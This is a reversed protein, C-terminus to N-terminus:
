LLHVTAVHHRKSLHYQLWTAGLGVIGCVLGISSLATKAWIYGPVLMLLVAFLVLGIVLIFYKTKLLNEATLKKHFIGVVRRVVRSLIRSAVYSFAWFLICTLVILLFNFFPSAGSLAAPSSADVPLTITRQAEETATVIDGSSPTLLVTCALVLLWVASSGIYGVVGFFNTSFSHVYKKSAKSKTVM